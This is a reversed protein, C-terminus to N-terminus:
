KIEKWQIPFKLPSYPNEKTTSIVLSLDEMRRAEKIDSLKRYLISM